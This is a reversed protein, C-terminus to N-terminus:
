PEDFILDPRITGVEDEGVRTNIIPKLEPNKTKLTYIIESQLEDAMRKISDM